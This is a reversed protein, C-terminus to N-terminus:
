IPQTAIVYATRHSRKKIGCDQTVKQLANRVGARELSTTALHAVKVGGRRNPFLLVSNRHVQWFRRM